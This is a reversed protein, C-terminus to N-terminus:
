DIEEGKESYPVVTFVWVQIKGDERSHKTCLLFCAKNDKYVLGDEGNYNVADLHNEIFVRDNRFKNGGLIKIPNYPFEGSCDSIEDLETKPDIEYCDIRYEWFMPLYGTLKDNNVDVAYFNTGLNKDM